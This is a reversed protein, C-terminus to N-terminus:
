SIKTDSPHFQKSKMMTTNDKIGAVPLRAMSALSNRKSRTSRRMEVMGSSRKITEVSIRESGLM